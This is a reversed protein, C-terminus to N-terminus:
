KKCGKAAETLVCGNMKVNSLNKMIHDYNNANAPNDPNNMVGGDKQRGPGWDKDPTGNSSNSVGGYEEGNGLFHGIEHSVDSGITESNMNWNFQDVDDASTHTKVDTGFSDFVVGVEIRVGEPCRKACNKCCLIYKSNWGKKMAADIKAQIDAKKKAWHEKWADDNATPFVLNIKVIVKLLCNSHQELRYKIKGRTNKKKGSQKWKFDGGDVPFDISKSEELGLYDWWNLANNGVM